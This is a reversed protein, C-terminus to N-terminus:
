KSVLETTGVPSTSELIILSGKQLFPAISSAASLVYSLDPQHDNKFPTPVAIIYTAADQPETYATLHGSSVVDKVIEELGPEVIHVEGKNLMDVVRPNIDVGLVCVGQLAFLASTPLGIYGLGIVCIKEFNM